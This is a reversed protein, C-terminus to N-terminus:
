VPDVRRYVGDDDPVIDVYGTATAAAAFEPMPTLFNAPQIATLGLSGGPTAYSWDPSKQEGLVEVREAKYAALIVNGHERVARAFAEDSRLDRVDPESLLVDFAVVRADPLKDLLEAYVERPWPFRGLHQPQLSVDDIAIIVIDAPPDAETHEYAFDYATNEIISFLFLGSTISVFRLVVVAVAILVATNIGRQRIQEKRWALTPDGAM